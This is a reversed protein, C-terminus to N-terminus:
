INKHQCTLATIKIIMIPFNNRSLFCLFWLSDTFFVLALKLPFAEIDLIFSSTVSALSVAIYSNAEYGSCLAQTHPLTYIYYDVSHGNDGSLWRILPAIISRGRKPIVHITPIKAMLELVVTNAQINVTNFEKCTHITSHYWWM